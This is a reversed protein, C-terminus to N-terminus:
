EGQIEKGTKMDIKVDITQGDKEYQVTTIKTQEDYSPTGVPNYGLNEYKGMIVSMNIKKAGMDYVPTGDAGNTVSGVVEGNLTFQLEGNSGITNSLGMLNFMERDGESYGAKEFSGAVISEGIANQFGESQLTEASVGLQSLSITQVQGSKDRVTINDGDFDIVSGGNKFIDKIDNQIYEQQEAPSLKNFANVEDVAKTSVENTQSINGINNLANNVVQYFNALAAAGGNNAEAQSWQADKPSTDYQDFISSAQQNYNTVQTKNAGAKKLAAMISNTFQQKTLAIKSDASNQNNQPNIQNDKFQNINISSM